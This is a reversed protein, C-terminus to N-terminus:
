ISDNFFDKYEDVWRYIRSLKGYRLEIEEKHSDYTELIDKSGDEKMLRKIMDIRGSNKLAINGFKKGYTKELLLLRRLIKRQNKEMTDTFANSSDKVVSTDDARYGNRLPGELGYKQYEDAAEKAREVLMTSVELTRGELNLTNGKFQDLELNYFDKYAPGGVGEFLALCLFQDAVNPLQQIEKELEERTLIMREKLGLNLCKYLDFKDFEEYHNQNDIVLNEKLCWSTYIKLQSNFNLLFEWSRTVISSYMNLIEKSTFNSCDKNLYTEYEKTIKFFTNMVIRIKVYSAKREALFREKQEMNYYLEDTTSM